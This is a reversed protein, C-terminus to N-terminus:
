SAKPAFEHKNINAAQLSRGQLADAETAYVVLETAVIDNRTGYYFVSGKPIIAPFVKCGRGSFVRRIRGKASNVTIFAHLGADVKHDRKHPNVRATKPKGATWSQGRYPSAGITDNKYTPTRLVKWVLMDYGAIRAKFGRRGNKTANDHKEAEIYLCM